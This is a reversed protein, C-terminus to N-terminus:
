ILKLAELLGTNLADEYSSYNEKSIKNDYNDIEKKQMKFLGCFYM